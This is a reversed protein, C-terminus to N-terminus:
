ADLLALFDEKSMGSLQGTQAHIIQDALDRKTEQLKQIKEEISGKAILKYVTVKKTQGIRHARDTAQNQAAVNWWPDYHIVVDAGILNLGVGGAKLSILFVPVDGENFAKVLELRKQKPTAGTIVYCPIGAEELRAEIIELMSTFQSFLLMRHGGDSASQVLQLCAELKAVEGRYNEFCLSPDCCIQRLKTLEALLKMRNQGFEEDNQSRLSEKMYLVQADYVRQQAHDFQVYRVEELKEPLDRLVDEKLRRLIFPATMKQLRAMAQEDQNKVIPIEFEKRFVDYGYLFGPMLYDFISWLESLRNEIPTGTLAYRARSKVVKVAKAAATTHNKIYQAEDIIEYDFIKGEYLDIDRKLLDYSTVLVDYDQWSDIRGKREEQTGTVLCVSLEPAFRGFEEGWNFVLSAPTVVLSCGSGERCGQDTGGDRKREQKAALLVAIVQLTKGLGMDDALIGGFGWAELTRLWKYGNKQYNRMIKSLSKPEEFDADKVTKFAKVVERFHSDRSSYVSDNEELMRDLYLTRYAPLHMKGKVFEKPKVHMSDMLEALMQLSSDELNVFAGSKLRHYRRKARYSELIDLLEERTLDETAIELDLMGGSVSVGVTMKVRNIVRVSRFRNTCRVEGLALLEDVGNEMMRYVLKEDGGCHIEDRELDIEPLWRGARYLIEQESMDDRFSERVRDQRYQDLVSVSQTGYNARVRCMINGNEADLYFVFQAEPTLCSRFLEPETETIEAVGKLQPLVRYYFEAMSRRGVRFSFSEGDAVDELAAVREQFSKEVCYLRDGEIYYASDTGHYLEPLTGSVLLADLEGTDERKEGSITMTVKPNGKACSLTGKRKGADRDEFAIARDSIRSYLDDLRWGFLEIANGVGARRQGYGYYREMLKQGVREEEEVIRSIFRIWKKGEESFNSLKHSFEATTGYQATESNKVHECFEDLKKIVFLKEVGIKFSLTLNGDKRVLRPELKLEQERASTETIVQNVRSNVFRRILYRASKDTADGMSHQRLYDGAVRMMADTYACRSKSTYWGYMDKRCTPCGCQAYILTDQGFTLTIPFEARGPNGVGSVQGRQENSYNDYGCIAKRVEVKKDLYLKEGKRVTDYNLKMSARIKDTDYYVYEELQRIRENDAKQDQEGAPDSAGGLLVYEEQGSEGTKRNTEEPVSKAARRKEDEPVSEAARQNKEEPVSKAARRKEDEPVSKAARRNKEKQSQMQM